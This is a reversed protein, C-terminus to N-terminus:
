QNDRSQNRCSLSQWKQLAPGLPLSLPFTQLFVCVRLDHPHLDPTPKCANNAADIPRCSTTPKSEYCCNAEAFHLLRLRQDGIRWGGSVQGSGACHVATRCAETRVSQMWLGRKIPQLVSQPSRISTQATDYLLQATVTKPWPRWIFRSKSVALFRALADSAPVAHM